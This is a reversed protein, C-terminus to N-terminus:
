VDAEGERKRLLETAAVPASERPDGTNASGPGTPPLTTHERSLEKGCRQCYVVTDYGGAETATPEVRNETVPSGPAHGLAEISREETRGCRSCTWIGRGAQTCGPQAAYGTFELGCNETIQYGCVTCTASHTGDHNDTWAGFSCSATERTGCSSCTKSHTGDNNTVYSGYTHLGTAPKTLESLPIEVTGAMDQFAKGCVTCTYYQVNGATSCTPAVAPVYQMTHTHNEDAAADRARAEELLLEVPNAEPPVSLNVYVSAASNERSTLTIRFTIVADTYNHPPILTIWETDYRGSLADYTEYVAWSGDDPTISRWVAAEELRGAEEASAANAELLETTYGRTDVLDARALAGTAPDIRNLSVDIGSTSGQIRPVIRVGEGPNLALDLSGGTPITYDGAVNGRDDPDTVLSVTGALLIDALSIRLPEGEIILQDIYRSVTLGSLDIMASLRELKWTASVIAGSESVPELEVWRLETMDPILLRLHDTDGAQFGHVNDLYLRVDPYNAIMLNGTQDLYGVTMRIAGNTGSNITADSLATTLDLDLLSVLGTLDFRAPTRTPTARGRISWKNVIEGLPNQELIEINEFAVNMRGMCVLNVGTVELLNDVCFDLELVEGPRISSYGQDTLYIYKTRLERGNPGDTTFYLAAALDKEEATLLQEETDQSVQLFMRQIKQGAPNQVAYLTVGNDANGGGMLYYTDILVGDRVRQLVGYSIPAMVPRVSNTRVEVGALSEFYNASLGMAYFVPRGTSDETYAMQGTGIRLPSQTVTDTYLVEASLSYSMPDTSASDTSPYLFLNLSDNKSSPERTVTSTWNEEGLPFDNENFGINITAISTGVIQNDPDNPKPPKYIQIDKTLSQPRNWTCRLSLGQGEPYKFDYEGNANIYRSGPGQVLYVSVNDITWHTVVSSRIQLQMKVIQSIDDVDVYFKDQTGPRFQYEPNSVCYDVNEAVGDITRSYKNELGSYDNMLQIVDVPNVHISAGNHDYYDYSMTMGTELIPDTVTFMEGYANTKAVTAYSGTSIAILLKASYSTKTIEFTHAIESITRGETGRTSGAAGPDRYDIGVWGLGDKSDSDATWTPSIKGTSQKKVKIYQIKLKDYIDSNSDQDDPIIRIATLEGYDQTTPIDFQAEAGTRFADAQLQQNALVCGSKGDEFILQFYFLNASGCDDNAANVKDGAVKVTVRYLCRQKNFGLDRCTDEYTMYNRYDSWDFPEESSVESSSGDFEHYMGDDQILNGPTWGSNPDQPDPATTPDEYVTGCEFCPEMASIDRSIVVHSRLKQGGTWDEEIEQWRFSRSSYSRILRVQIGKFQWEDPGDVKVSVTRFQKVESIPIMVQVTGGTRLGYNYAFDSVNGPWTGYFQDVYDRLRLEGTTTEKDRMNLYRFQLYIDRITGANSVNDSTITILYYERNDKPHLKMNERYDVMPLVSVSGADLDVGEVSGAVISAGPEGAGPTFAYRLVASDHTIKVTVDRYAAVCLYSVTEEDAVSVRGPRISQDAGSATKIRTKERAKAEGISLEVGATVGNPDEVSTLEKFDPVMLSVAISDGQQAYGAIAVDGDSQGGSLKEMTWGLANVIVPVSVERICGYIDRYFFRLAAGECFKLDSIKSYAGAEYSGAMSEFGAGGIDALDIQFVVRNKVQTTHATGVFNEKGFSAATSQNVLTVGAAGSSSGPGTINFVGASSDWHFIGGGSAMVVDAIVEGAYDIYGDDSYWGYMELGYLTDVRSIRMGQCAWSSPAVKHNGASDVTEELRGFIQIREVTTVPEPTTFLFQDTHISGLGKRDRLADTTYGFIQEVKQRRSDRNAVDSAADMSKRMADKGPFIVESRTKASSGSGTTYYIVFYKVNDATGGGRVSGTSVELLYTNRASSGASAPQEDSASVTREASPQAQVPNPNPDNGESAYSLPLLSLGLALCLVLALLRRGLALCALKVRRRRRGRELEPNM